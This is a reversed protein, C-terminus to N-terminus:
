REAMAGKTVVRGESPRASRLALEIAAALERDDKGIAGVQSWVLLGQRDFLYSAPLAAAGFLGTARDDPDHLITYPIGNLRVFERVKAAAGASDLSVGVIALGTAAYRRHLRVLEPTEARCPLCWTAWLNVLIARGALGALTIRRGALDAAAYDPALSGPQGDWARGAGGGIVSRDTGQSPAPVAALPLSSARVRYTGGSDDTWAALLLAGARAVHPFGSSRGASMRAVTVADGLRGHPSVRRLKLAAGGSALAVWAVVADGADDLLVDVRGLPSAGDVEVPAAFTAGADESFAVLVRPRDAAATYWAVAVRRGSAAVAPGNVPCGDIKWGDAHVLSPNSWRGGSRRVIAIDRVEGASRDRYVVLPGDATAAASTQCCECTRPDLLREEKVERDVLATRLGMDGAAEGGHGGPKMRRGDLWFLRLRGDEPSTSVFGHETESRDTHATGLRSWTAGGDQSRALAVDYSYTEAGSRAAWHALLSGEGSRTVSPFDAWNAFFDKGRLIERPESWRGREFRSFRLMWTREEMKLRVDVPELWSLLAGQGDATLNPAM